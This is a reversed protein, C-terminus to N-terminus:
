EHYFDLQKSGIVHMSKETVHQRGLESVTHQNAQSAPSGGPARVKRIEIFEKLAELSVDVGKTQLWTVIQWYAYDMAELQFIYSALHDMRSRQGRPKVQAVFDEFEM